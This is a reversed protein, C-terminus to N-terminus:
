DSPDGEIAAQLLNGNNSRKKRCFEMSSFFPDKSIELPHPINHM